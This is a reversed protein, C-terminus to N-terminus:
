EDKLFKEGNWTIKRLTKGSTPNRVLITKGYRPLEFRWKRSGQGDDDGRGSDALPFISDPLRDMKGDTGLDFFQLFTWKGEETNGTSVVLLPRGNRDRFLAVEFDGQGGDGLCRIYGNKKDIVTGRKGRLFRLTDLSPAEFTRMPLQVLYDIISTEQPEAKGIFASQEQDFGVTIELAIRGWSRNQLENELVLESSKLWRIPEVRRVTQEHSADPAAPASPKPDPLEPLEIEHFAEGRRFFVRTSGVMTKGNDSFYAVRQSDASWLLYTESFPADPGLDAAVRHMRTEVIALNGAAAYGLGFQGDPSKCTIEDRANVRAAFCGLLLTGLFASLGKM